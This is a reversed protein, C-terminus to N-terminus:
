LVTGEGNKERGGEENVAAGGLIWYRKNGEVSHKVFAKKKGKPKQSFNHIRKKNAM